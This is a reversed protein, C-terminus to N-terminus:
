TRHCVTLFTQYGAIQTDLEQKIRTLTAPPPSVMARDKLTIHQSRYTKTTVEFPVATVKQDSTTARVTLQQEGVTTDLSLGVVAWWQQKEDALVLVPADNFFAQPKQSHAGIALVAVGGPVRHDLQRKIETVSEAPAAQADQASLGLLIALGLMGVWLCFRLRVIM